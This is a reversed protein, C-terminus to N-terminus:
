AGRWGGRPAEVTCAVRYLVHGSAAYKREFATLPAEVQVREVVPAPRGLAVGLARAFEDAYVGWNCRLELEGGLALLQPFVPHAHWRRGLHRPKPWPNPYCLYHREARWGAAVALRWFSALEARVWAVNGERVPRGSAGVRSLRAASKDVGLVLHGPWRGALRRTGEGTGCGSDLVLRRAEDGHVIARLAEFADVTPAHLPERWPNDLHRRVVETLRAHPARQASRVPASGGAAPQGPSRAAPDEPM